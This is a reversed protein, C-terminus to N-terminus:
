PKARSSAVMSLGPSAPPLGLGRAICTPYFKTQHPLHIAGAPTYFMPFIPQDSVISDPYLSLDLSLPLNLWFLDVVANLPQYM